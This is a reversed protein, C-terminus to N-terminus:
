GGVQDHFCDYTFGNGEQADLPLVQDGNLVVPPAASAGTPLESLREIKYKYPWVLSTGEVFPAVDELEFPPTPIPLLYVTSDRGEPVQVILDDVVRGPIKYYQPRNQRVETGETGRDVVVIRSSFFRADRRCQASIGISYDSDEYLYPPVDFELSIRYLAGGPADEVRIVNSAFGGPSVGEPGDVWTGDTGDAGHRAQTKLDDITCDPGTNPTCWSEIGSFPAQENQHYFHGLRPLDWTATHAVYNGYLDGLDLQEQALYFRTRQLTTGPTRDTDGSIRGLLYPKDGYQSVFSWWVGLGYFRAGLGLDQINQSQYPQPSKFVHEENASDWRGEFALPVSPYYTLSNNMWSKSGALLHFSMAEAFSEGAIGRIYHHTKRYTRMLTFHGTHGHEHVPRGWSSYSDADYTSWRGFGGREAIKRHDASTPEGPFDEPLWNFGQFLDTTYRCPNNFNEAEGCPGGGPCIDELDSYNRYTNLSDAPQLERTDVFPVMDMEFFMQEHWRDWFGIMRHLNDRDSTSIPPFADAQPIRMTVYVGSAFHQTAHDPVIDYGGMGWSYRRNSEPYGDPIPYDGASGCRKGIEGVEDASLKRGDGYIRVDWVKANVAGLTLARLPDSGERMASRVAQMDLGDITTAVPGLYATADGTEPIVLAFQNCQYNKVDGGSARDGAIPHETDGVQLSLADNSLTATLGLGDLLTGSIPDPETGWVHMFKLTLSLGGSDTLGDMTNSDPADVTLTRHTFDTRSTFGDLSERPREEMTSSVTFDTKALNKPVISLPLFVQLDADHEADGHFDHAECVCEGDELCRSVPDARCAGRDGIGRLWGCGDATVCDEFQDHTSCQSPPFQGPLVQPQAYNLFAESSEVVEPHPDDTDDTDDTGETDGSDSDDTPDTPQGTCAASALVVCLVCDRIWVANRVRM